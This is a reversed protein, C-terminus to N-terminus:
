RQGNRGNLKAWTERLELPVDEPALDSMGEETGKRLAETYYWVKFDLVDLTKRMEEIQKELSERRELFLELREKLSDDGKGVLEIFRRMEKISLGSEKLCDLVLLAQYGTDDFVRVGGSSREVFPLLGEKDYYRITSAPIGLAKSLEGVTYIM